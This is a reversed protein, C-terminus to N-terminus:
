ATRRAIAPSGYRWALSCLLILLLTFGSGAGSDKEEGSVTLILASSVVSNDAKEHDDEQPEVTATIRAVGIKAAHVVVTDQWSDGVPIDPVECTLLAGDSQCRPPVSVTASDPVTFTVVAGQAIQPGANVM